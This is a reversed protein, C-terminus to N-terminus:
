YQYYVKKTFGPLTFIASTQFAYVRLSMVETIHPFPALYFESVFSTKYARHM